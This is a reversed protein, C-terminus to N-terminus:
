ATNLLPQSRVSSGLLHCPTAADHQSGRLVSGVQADGCAEGDITVRYRQPTLTKALLAQTNTPSLQPDPDCVSIRASWILDVMLLMQRLWLMLGM